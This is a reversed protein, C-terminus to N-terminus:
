FGSSLGLPSQLHLLDQVSNEWQKSNLRVLRSSPGPVGTIPANPDIMGGPGPVNGTGNGVNGGGPTAPGGGVSGSCGVLVGLAVSLLSGTKRGDFDPVVKM